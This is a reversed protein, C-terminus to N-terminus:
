RKYIAAFVAGLVIFYIMGTVFWAIALNMTIPYVAFSEFAMPVSMFLGMLTGYRVGEMIGRGEYGKTFIYCFVFLYVASTFFMIWMLDMMQEEPRWVHMLARYTDALLVEHVLFGIVFAVVYVVVFGIWFTKNKLM